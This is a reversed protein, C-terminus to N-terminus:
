NQARLIDSILTPHTTLSGVYVVEQGNEVEVTSGFDFLALSELEKFDWIM